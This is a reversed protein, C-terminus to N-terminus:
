ALHGHLVHSAGYWANLDKIELLATEAMAESQGLYVRRVEANSASRMPRARRLCVAM